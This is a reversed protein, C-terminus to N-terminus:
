QQEKMVTGGGSLTFAAWYYPHAFPRPEWHKEEQRKLLEIQQNISGVTEPPALKRQRELTALQEQIYNVVYRRNVKERLWHQAAQLARSPYLGDKFHHQYFRAMLLATSIDNVAWLTSLVWPTGAFLFGSALGLYEDALDNPDTITTECASLVVLSTEPLQIAEAFLDALNLQEDRAFLLHSALPDAWGYCGHGAFHFISRPVSSKVVELRAEEGSYRQVGSSPFYAIMHEVEPIAFPLDNTPNAIATLSRWAPRDKARERCIHQITASPAYEIDYDDGLFHCQRRYLRREVRHLASFPILHLARHSIIRLRKVGRDKLHAELPAILYTYLQQLVLDMAAQLGGGQDKLQDLWGAEQTLLQHLWSLTVKPSTFVYLSNEGRLTSIEGSQQGKDELGHTVYIVTGSETVAFELQAIGSQGRLTDAVERYTVTEGRVIRISYRWRTQAHHELLTKITTTRQDPSLQQQNLAHTTFILGEQQDENASNAPIGYVAEKEVIVNLAEMVAELFLATEGAEFSNGIEKIWDRWRHKYESFIWFKAEKIEMGSSWLAEAADNFNKISIDQIIEAIPLESSKIAQYIPLLSQYIDKVHQVHQSM